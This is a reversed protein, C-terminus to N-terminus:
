RASDLNVRLRYYRQRQSRTDVVVYHNPFPTSPAVFPNTWSVGLLENTALAEAVQLEYVLNAETDFHILVQSTQFLEIRDIKPQAAAAGLLM